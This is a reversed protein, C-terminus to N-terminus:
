DLNFDIGIMPKFGLESSMTLTEACQALSSGELGEISELGELASHLVVAPSSM